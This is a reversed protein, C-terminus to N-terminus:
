EDDHPIEELIKAFNEAHDQEDQIAESFAEQAYEDGADEADDLFENYLGIGELEEGAAQLLDSHIDAHIKKREVLDEPIYRDNEELREELSLEEDTWDPGSDEAPDYWDWANKMMGKPIGVGRTLSAIENAGLHIRPVEPRELGYYDSQRQIEM